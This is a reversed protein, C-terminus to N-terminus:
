VVSKRDAPKDYILCQQTSPEWTFSKCRSPRRPDNCLEWCAYPYDIGQGRIYPELDDGGIWKAEVECVANEPLCSPPTTPTATTTPTPIAGCEACEKDWVRDGSGPDAVSGDKAPLTHIWCTGSDSFTFSQCDGWRRPLNCFDLCEHVDNLGLKRGFYGGPGWFSEMGCIANPCSSSYTNAASVANATIM